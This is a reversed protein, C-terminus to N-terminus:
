GTQKPLVYISPALPQVEDELRIELGEMYDPQTLCMSQDSMSLSAIRVGHLYVDVSRVGQRPITYHEASLTHYEDGIIIEEAKDGLNTTIM